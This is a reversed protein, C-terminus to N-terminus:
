MLPSFLRAFSEKLKQRRKRNTWAELSLEECNVIDDTYLKRLKVATTPDYIFANAEFNQVFSREDLNCSGVISIFDDIVIAKSHL